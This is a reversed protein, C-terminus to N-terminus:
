DDAKEPLAPDNKSFNIREIHGSGDRFDFTLSNHTIASLWGRHGNFIVAQGIKWEEM